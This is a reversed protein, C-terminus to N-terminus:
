APAKSPITTTSGGKVPKKLKFSDGSAPNVERQVELASRKDGFDKLTPIIRKVKNKGKQDKDLTFWCGRATMAPNTM